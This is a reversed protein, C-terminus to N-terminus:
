EEKVHDIDLEIAVENKNAASALIISSYPLNFCPAGKVDFRFDEEELTYSGWNWGIISKRDKSEM